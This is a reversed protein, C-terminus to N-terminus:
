KHLRNVFVDRYPLGGPAVSQEGESTDALIEGTKQSIDIRRSQGLCETKGPPHVGWAKENDWTQWYLGDIHGTHEKLEGAIYKGLM